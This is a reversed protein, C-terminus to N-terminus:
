WRSAALAQAVAREAASRLAPGYTAKAGHGVLIRILIGTRERFGPTECWDFYPSVCRHIGHPLLDSDLLRRKSIV